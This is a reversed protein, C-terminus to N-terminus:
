GGESTTSFHFISSLKNWGHDNRAQVRAEYSTAPQLGKILFSRRHRTNQVHQYGAFATYRFGQEDYVEPIVVNEWQNEMTPQYPNYAYPVIQNEKDHFLHSKPLQKRYFLRYERIPSYSQVTWSVNYQDRFHSVTPQLIILLLLKQNLLWCSFLFNEM